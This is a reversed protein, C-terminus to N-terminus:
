ANVAVVCAHGAQTVLMKGIRALADTRAPACIIEPRTEQLATGLGAALHADVHIIPRYPVSPTKARKRQRVLAARRVTTDTSKAESRLLRIANALADKLEPGATSALYWVSIGEGCYDDDGAVSAADAKRWGPLSRLTRSIMAGYEILKELEDALHLAAERAEAEDRAYDHKAM